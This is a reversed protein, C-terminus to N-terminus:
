SLCLNKVRKKICPIEAVEPLEKVIGEWLDFVLEKNPSAANAQKVLEKAKFLPEQSGSKTCVDLLDDWESLAVEPAARTYSQDVGHIEGGSHAIVVNSNNNSISLDQNKSKKMKLGEESLAPIARNVEGKLLVPQEFMGLNAEGELALSKHNSEFNSDKDNEFFSMYSKGVSFSDEISNGSTIGVYFGCSFEIAGEDLVRGKMGVVYPVHPVLLRAQEDSYCSSFVICCLNSKKKSFLPAVNEFNVLRSYGREDEFYIGNSEGHGSFHLIHPDFEVTLSMLDDIQAAGVPKLEFSDRHKSRNLIDSICKIEKQLRLANADIPNSTVILIKIKM